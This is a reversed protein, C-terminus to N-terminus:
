SKEAKEPESSKKEKEAKAKEAEEKVEQEDKIIQDHKITDLVKYPGIVIKDDETIGSEVIIHTMDSPGTKVPTVVAKGDIIRYVVSIFTKNMDIQDSNDRIEIPLTDVERSVVAQSPVKLIQQHVQTEVEVDATLGSFLQRTGKKLMIETKFYKSGNPGRDHTLAITDVVGDFEEDSFAQVKVKATQGLKLKGIEAEDVQAVLLMQSLDAVEMIVTGANNMTGTMVLEGVEANLRTVIGDIPSSIVTYSLNELAQEIRADAVELNHSLVVLGLESAKLSHVANAYQAEFEEYVCQVQDFSVKSVDKSELLKKSRLVDNGARKLTSQLGMLSAKQAEIRAKEVDIQAAQSARQAKASRLSSELDKSDLRILVSADENDTAKKVLQGEDFPLEVIRSAIKASISVKTKPEIEGPASVIEKLSGIQPSEVRVTTINKSIKSKKRAISGIILAAIALVIIIILLKKFIRM